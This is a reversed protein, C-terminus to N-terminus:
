AARTSTANEVTRAAVYAAIREISDLNDPVIDQDAVTFGFREEIFSVLELIGTSDILDNEILSTSAAVNRSEDGFLFNEVIFERIQNEVSVVDPDDREVAM